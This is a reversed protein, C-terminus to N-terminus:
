KWHVLTSTIWQPRTVCIYVDTFQAMMPESLPKDGPRRWAIIQALAPINNILGKFVFKLSIKISIWINKKGFICKFIDDPFHHGNQRRRLTIADSCSTCTHAPYSETGKRTFWMPLRFPYILLRSEIRGQRDLWWGSKPISAEDDVQSYNDYTSGQQM